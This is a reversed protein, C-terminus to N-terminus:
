AISRPTGEDDVLHKEEDNPVRKAYVMRFMGAALMAALFEFFTYIVCKYWLGGALIHSTAVAIAIAPNLAGGSLTGAAGAGATICSAIIFGTYEKAPAVHESTGCVALFVFAMLFTFVLEVAILEGWGHGIGPGLPFTTGDHAMAYSFAGALGGLIQVIWYGMVEGLVAGRDKGSLYVALTVAPNFHGGSIDGVAYWMVMLAAAISFAGAKSNGLVNLGVTFVIMYTGFFETLLRAELRALPKEAPPPPEERPTFVEVPVEPVIHVTLTAHDLGSIPLAGKFGRPYFNDSWMAVTGETRSGLLGQDCVVFEISDGVNWDMMFTEDWVPDLSKAIIKTECKMRKGQERKPQDSVADLVQATVYMKDGIMNLHKLGSASVISVHLKSPAGIAERQIPEPRPPEAVIEEIPESDDLEEPRLFRFMIVAFIAGVIEMFAFLAFWKFGAGSFLASSVLGITIAPNFCGAGVPAAGYAGAVFVFGIALGFYQNKGYQCGKAKSITVNLHTFILFFTYVLECILAGASGTSETPGVEVGRKFVARLSLGAAVAGVLQAGIYIFVQGWGREMHGAMGMAFSVAPNFHGGSIAGLSYISVMLVCAISLAGFIANGNLVNCGVTFVLLYSGIFEALVRKGINFQAM